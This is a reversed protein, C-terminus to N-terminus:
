HTAGARALFWFNGSAILVYRGGGSIVISFVRTVSAPLKGFSFTPRSLVTQQSNLPFGNGSTVNANPLIHIETHVYM